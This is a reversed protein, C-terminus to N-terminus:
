FTGEISVSAGRVVLGLSVDNKARSGPADGVVIMPIGAGIAGVAVVWSAVNWPALARARESAAIAADDCETHHPGKCGQDITQARAILVGGTVAAAAVSGAGLTVLAIGVGRVPGISRHVDPEGPAIAVTLREGEGLRVDTSSRAYGPATAAVTHHVAPDIEISQGGVAVVEGDIEVRTASPASPALLVSLHAVRDELRRVSARAEAVNPSDPPLSRVAERWLVLAERLLGRAEHCAALGQLPGTARSRSYSEEFLTCAKEYDRNDMAAWGDDFLEEPTEARAEFPHVLMWGLLTSRRFWRELRKVPVAV